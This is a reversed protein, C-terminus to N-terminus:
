TRNISDSNGMDLTSRCRARGSLKVHSVHSGCCTMRGTEYGDDSPLELPEEGTSEVVCFTITAWLSKGGTSGGEGLKGLLKDGMCGLGIGAVAGPVDEGTM